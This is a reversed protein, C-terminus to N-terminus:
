GSAAKHCFRHQRKLMQDAQLARVRQRGGSATCTPSHSRRSSKAAMRCACVSKLYAQRAQTQHQPLCPIAFIAHLAATSMYTNCCSMSNSTSRIAKAVPAQIALHPAPHTCTHFHIRPLPLCRRVILTLLAPISISTSYSSISITFKVGSHQECTIRALRPAPRTCTWTTGSQMRSASTAVCCRFCGQGTRNALYSDHLTSKALKSPLINSDQRCIV